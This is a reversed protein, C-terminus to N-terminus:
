PNSIEYYTKVQEKLTAVQQRLNGVMKLGTSNFNQGNIKVMTDSTIDQTKLNVVASQTEVRQLRSTPELSEAVVNGELYLMKDKTLVAKQASLKWSQSELLKATENKQKQNDGATNFLYVLPTTFNTKGDQSFHEVKDSIALYQKKGDPSFVTTEMKQGIYDPSDPAKVLSQLDNNDQNLSYYWGLLCLAAVGLIINWRINM